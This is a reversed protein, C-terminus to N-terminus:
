RGRHIQIFLFIHENKSNYLLIFKQFYNFNELNEM